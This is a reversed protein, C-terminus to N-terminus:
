YTQSPAYPPALTTRDGDGDIIVVNCASAVAPPAVVTVVRPLLPNSSADITNVPSNECFLM